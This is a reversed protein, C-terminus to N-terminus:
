QTVACEAPIQNLVSLLYPEEAKLTEELSSAGGAGTSQEPDQTSVSGSEPGRESERKLRQVKTTVEAHPSSSLLRLVLKLTM